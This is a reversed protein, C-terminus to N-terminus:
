EIYYNTFEWQQFLDDKVCRTLRLRKSRSNVGLCVLKSTNEATIQDPHKLESSNHLWRLTKLTPNCPKLHITAQSLIPEFCMDQQRIQMMWTYNFHQNPQALNCPEFSFSEDQVSLCKRFGRNFILGEAKVLPADLEPYVNDLYWKFSKCQLRNRLKIQEDLNGLDIGNEDLLHLQGHGYFLNKYEDMWVEAVRALNREVTERRNNPFTYPNHKRFIHGVRSCPIIEIKGGCMWIKFSIEMNEGGWVELGPDYAGLEYFYKKDISFLGGAMVPCRIPDAVTMNNKKVYDNSLANWAFVLPWNFIGRQFNDVLKYSMDQDSIVEIVPCPVAMRDLYIRELLPELWGVNCEIHSDLFTLVDGKAAAAGVMRARILGQREKLHIIQVKPFDAMYNDLDKLYAKQSFDDVLIIEKLLHPPSRNLVSHVSRLLTSWVEDVFCFIVSTSPLENHVVSNACIEPRTDPIGRDLPIKNSLYVNFQGEDWMQDAMAEMEIPVTAPQGFQGVANPNRPTATVDLSLVQHVGAKNLHVTESQKVKEKAEKDENMSPNQNTDQLLNKEIHKEEKVSLEEKVTQQEPVEKVHTNEPPKVPKMIEVVKPLNKMRKLVEVYKNPNKVPKKIEVDEPHNEVLNNKPRTDHKDDFVVTVKGAIIPPKDDGPNDEAFLDVAVKGAVISPKDDGPNEQLNKKDQVNDKNKRRHMRFRPVERDTMLHQEDDSDETTKPPTGKNMNSSNEIAWKLKQFSRQRALQNNIDGLSVRLVAIDVIVWIISAMFVFLLVRVSGRMKWFCKLM